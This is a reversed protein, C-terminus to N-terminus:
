RKVRERNKYELLGQSEIFHYLNGFTDQYSVFVRNGLDIKSYEKLNTEICSKKYTQGEILKM